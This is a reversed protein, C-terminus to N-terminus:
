DYWIVYSIPGGDPLRCEEPVTFGPVFMFDVLATLLKTALPPAEEWEEEEENKENNGGGEEEENEDEDEIVFQSDGGDEETRKELGFSEAPAKKVKVKERRWFVTRELNGEAGREKGLGVGSVFPVVRSLVRVCNLAEKSLDEGPRGLPFDNLALLSFLHTSLVNILTLLNEPRRILTHSLSASDLLTIM